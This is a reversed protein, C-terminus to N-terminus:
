RKSQDYLMRALILLGAVATIKWLQLSIRELVEAIRACDDM